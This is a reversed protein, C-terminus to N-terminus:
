VWPPCYFPQNEAAVCPKTERNTEMGRESDLLFLLQIELVGLLIGRALLQRPVSIPEAEKRDGGPVLWGLDWCQNLSIEEVKLTCYILAGFLWFEGVIFGTCLFCNWNQLPINKRCM